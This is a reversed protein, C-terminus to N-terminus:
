IGLNGRYEASFAVRESVVGLGPPVLQFLNDQWVPLSVGLFLKQGLYREHDLPLDRNFQQGIRNIGLSIPRKVWRALNLQQPYPLPAISM